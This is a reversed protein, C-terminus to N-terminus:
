ESSNRRIFREYSQRQYVGMLFSRLKAGYGFTITLTLRTVLVAIATKLAFAILVVGSLAVTLADPTSSGAYGGVFPLRSTIQLLTEPDKLASILAVLLGIGILDTGSSLLYLPLLMVLRHRDTGVLFLVKSFYNSREKIIM